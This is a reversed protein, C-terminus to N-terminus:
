EAYTDKTKMLVAKNLSGALSISNLIYTNISTTEQNNKSFLQLSVQIPKQLIKKDPVVITVIEYWKSTYDDIQKEVTLTRSFVRLGNQLKHQQIDGTNTVTGYNVSYKELANAYGDTANTVPKIFLTGTLGKLSYRGDSEKTGAPMGLDISFTKNKMPVFDFQEQMNIKGIGDVLAQLKKAGDNNRDEAYNAEYYLMMFGKDEGPTYPLMYIRVIRNNEDTDYENVPNSSGPKEDVNRLRPMKSMAKALEQQNRTGHYVLKYELLNLPANNYVLNATSSFNKDYTYGAGDPRVSYQRYSRTMSSSFEDISSAAANSFSVKASKIPLIKINLEKTGSSSTDEKGSFLAPDLLFTRELFPAKIVPAPKKAVATNTAASKTMPKKAPSQAIALVMIFFSVILALYYKM